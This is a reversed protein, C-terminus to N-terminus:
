DNTTVMVLSKYVGTDKIYSFKICDHTLFSFGMDGDPSAYTYSQKKHFYFDILFIM